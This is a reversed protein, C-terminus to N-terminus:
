EGELAAPDEVPLAMRQREGLLHAVDLEAEAVPPATRGDPAQGIIDTFTGGRDIWFQWGRASM